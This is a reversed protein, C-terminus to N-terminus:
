LALLARQDPLRTRRERCRRERTRREASGNALRTRFGCVRVPAAAIREDFTAQVRQVPQTLRVDLEGGVRPESSPRLARRVAPPYRSAPHLCGKTSTTRIPPTADDSRGVPM